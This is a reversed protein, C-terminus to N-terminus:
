GIHVHAENTSASGVIHPNRPRKEGNRKRPDSSTTDESRCLILFDSKEKDITVKTLMNSAPERQYVHATSHARACKSKQSPVSMEDEGTVFLYWIYISIISEPLKVMESLGHSALQSEWYFAIRYSSRLIM